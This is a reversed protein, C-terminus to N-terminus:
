KLGAVFEVLDRLERRSLMQGLGDPMPSIGKRRVAIDAKKVTNTGDPPCDITLETETEQKIIGSYGSHDKLRIVVTEYGPTIKADPYLISELIDERTMNTAVSTLPPGTDGGERGVKHCKICVAEPKDFFVRRGRAADGGHLLDLYNGLRGDELRASQYQALKEQIAPSSHQGAAELVELQLEKAVKGALLRDLWASIAQEPAAANTAALGALEVRWQTLGAKGDVPGSSSASAIGAASEPAQKLNAAEADKGPEAAGSIGPFLLWGGICFLAVVSWRQLPRRRRDDCGRGTLGYPATYDM